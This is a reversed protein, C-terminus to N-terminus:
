CSIPFELPYKEFCLLYYYYYYIASSQYLNQKKEDNRKPINSYQSISTTLQIPM